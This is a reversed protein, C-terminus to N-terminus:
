PRPGGPLCSWDRVDHRGRAMAYAKGASQCTEISVFPMPVIALAAGNPNHGVSRPDAGALLVLVLWFTM